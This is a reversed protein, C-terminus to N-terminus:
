HRVAEVTDLRATLAKIQAAEHDNAARLDDNDAKLEQVAKILPIVLGSYEIGLEGDPAYRTPGSRTVLEPIVQQVDQAILGMQLQQPSKPDRWHFTVPKLREVTSLGYSEPLAAIHKKIRRDSSSTWLTSGHQLKVGNGGSTSMVYFYSGDDYLSEESTGSLEFTLTPSVSNNITLGNAAPTTTGIGVNGSTDLIMRQTNNTYFTLPHNTLTRLALGAGYTGASEYTAYLDGIVTGNGARLQMQARNFTTSGDGETANTNLVRISPVTAITNTNSSEQVDMEAGPGTTGIGVNGAGTIRMKEALTTTTDATTFFEINTGNATTSYNEEATMLIKAGASAPWGSGNYGTANFNGLQDGSLVASPSAYSGRAKQSNFFSPGGNNSYRTVNLAAGQGDGIINPSVTASNSYIDFIDPPAATGIGVNGSSKIVMVTSYAGANATDFQIRGSNAAGDAVMDIGTLQNSTGNVGWISGVTNSTTNGSNSLELAGRQGSGQITLPLSVTSGFLVNVYGPATTGIGVNGGTTIVMTDAATQNDANATPVTAFIFGGALDSELLAGKIGRTKFTNGTTGTECDFCLFPQGSGSWAGLTSAYGAANGHGWEFSNGANRAQIYASTQGVNGSPGVSLINTPSTNGIGVNTGNDYTAGIGLTTGNPTWRALYNTTGSGGIGAALTTWSSGNCYQLASGNWQISGTTSSGCTGTSMMISGNVQLTTNPATTGIGVNGTSSVHLYETGNAWLGVTNTASSSIGNTQAAAAHALSCAALCLL